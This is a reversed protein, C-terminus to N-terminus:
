KRKKLRAAIRNELVGSLDIHLSFLDITVKDDFLGIKAYLPKPVGLPHPCLFAFVTQPVKPGGPLPQMGDIREGLIGPQRLTKVILALAEYPLGFQQWDTTARFSWRVSPHSGKSLIRVVSECWDAPLPEIPNM